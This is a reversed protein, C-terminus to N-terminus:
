ITVKVVIRARNLKKELAQAIKFCLNEQIYDIDLLEEDLYYDGCLIDESCNDCTLINNSKNKSLGYEEPDFSILLNDISSVINLCNLCRM